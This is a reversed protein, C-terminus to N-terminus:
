PMSGLMYKMSSTPCPISRTYRELRYFGVKEKHGRMPQSKIKYFYLIEELMPM